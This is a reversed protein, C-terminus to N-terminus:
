VGFVTVTGFESRRVVRAGSLTIPPAVTTGFTQSTRVRIPLAFRSVQAYTQVGSPTFTGSIYPTLALAGVTAASVIPYVRGGVSRSFAGM